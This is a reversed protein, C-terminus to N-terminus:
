LVWAILMTAGLQEARALHLKKMFPLSVLEYASTKASSKQFIISQLAAMPCKSTSLTKTQSMACSEEYGNKFTADAYDAIHKEGNYEALMEIPAHVYEFCQPTKKPCTMTRRCQTKATTKESEGRRGQTSNSYSVLAQKM